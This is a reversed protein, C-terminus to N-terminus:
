KHENKMIVNVQQGKGRRKVGYSYRHYIICSVHNLEFEQSVRFFSLAKSVSMSVKSTRSDIIMAEDSDVGSAACSDLVNDDVYM